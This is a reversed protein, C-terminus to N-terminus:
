RDTDDQISQLYLLLDGLLPSVKIPDGGSPELDTMHEQDLAQWFRPMDGHPVVPTRGDIQLVVARTPFVDGNHRSLRTLDPPTIALMEALPGNGTAEKGHCEACFYMYLDRGEEVAEQASAPAATILM